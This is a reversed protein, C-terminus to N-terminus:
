AQGFRALPKNVEELEVELTSNSRSDPGPHAESTSTKPALLYRRDTCPLLPNYMCPSSPTEGNVVMQARLLHWGHGDRAFTGIAADVPNQRPFTQSTSRVYYMISSMMISGELGFKEAEVGVLGSYEMSRVRGGRLLLARTRIEREGESRVGSAGRNFRRWTSAESM